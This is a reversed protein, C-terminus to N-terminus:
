MSHRETISMDYHEHYINSSCADVSLISIRLLSIGYYGMLKSGGGGTGNRLYKSERRGSYTVFQMSAINLNQRDLFYHGM